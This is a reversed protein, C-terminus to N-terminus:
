VDLTSRIDKVKRDLTNQSLPTLISRITRKSVGDGTIISGLYFLAGAIPRTDSFELIGMEELKHYKINLWAELEQNKMGSKTILLKIYQWGREANTSSTKRILAVDPNLRDREELTRNNTM